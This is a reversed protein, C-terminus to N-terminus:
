VLKFLEIGRIRFPRGKGRIVGTRVAHRITSPQVRVIAAAETTTYIADPLIQERATNLSNEKM